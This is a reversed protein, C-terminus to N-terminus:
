GRYVALIGYDTIWARSALDQHTYTFTTLRVINQEGVKSLWSNVHEDFHDKGVEVHDSHRFSKVKLTRDTEKAAVELTPLPKEILSETPGEHVPVVFHKHEKAGASSAMANIVTGAPAFLPTSATAGTGAAPAGAPAPGPHPPPTAPASPHTTSAEPVTVVKGCAPCEIQTGAGSADISLQQQCHPCDFIIDM